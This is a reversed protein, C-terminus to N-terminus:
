SHTYGDAEIGLTICPLTVMLCDGFALFVKRRFSRYSEFEDQHAFVGSPLRSTREREYIRFIAERQARTIVM